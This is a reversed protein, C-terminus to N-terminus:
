SELSTQEKLVGAEEKSLKMLVGGITCGVLWFSCALVFLVRTTLQDAFVASIAVALLMFGQNLIMFTSNVRGRYEDTTEHQMITQMAVSWGSIFVGVLTGWIIFIEFRITTIQMFITVGVGLSLIFFLNKLAKDSKTNMFMVAVSGLVSGLGQASVLWTFREMPQKLVDIVYPLWLPGIFGQGFMTIAITLMIISLKPSRIIVRFGAAIDEKLQSFSVQRATGAKAAPVSVLYICVASIIFSILDILLVMRAGFLSVIAGGCLPAIFMITNHTMGTLSNVKLLQEKEVINPITSSLAPNFFVGIASKMAVIVYITAVIYRDSVLILPVTLLARLLDSAIMIKKRDWRDVLAGAFPGLLLIPLVRVFVTISLASKSGTIEYVLMPIALFTIMDGFISIGQGFWLKVVNANKFLDKMSTNNM